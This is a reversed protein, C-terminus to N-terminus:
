RNRVIIGYLGVSVGLASSALGHRSCVSRLTATRVEVPGCKDTRPKIALPRRLPAVVSLDTRISGEAPRHLSREINHQINHRGTQQKEEKGSLKVDRSDNQRRQRM